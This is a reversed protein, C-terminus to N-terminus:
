KWFEWWKRENSKRDYSDAYGNHNLVMKAHHAVLDFKHDVFEEIRKNIRPSNFKILDMFIGGQVAYIFELKEFEEFAIKEMEPDGKKLDNILGALTIKEFPSKKLELRKLLTPLANESEMKVLTQAILLDDKKDLEQILRKEVALFEEVTLESIIKDNTFADREERTDPPIIESVLNEINRNRM